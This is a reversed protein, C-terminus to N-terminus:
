GVTTMVYEGGGLIAPLDAQEVKKITWDRSWVYVESAIRQAHTRCDTHKMVELVLHTYSKFASRDFEGEPIVKDWLQDKLECLQVPRSGVKYLLM